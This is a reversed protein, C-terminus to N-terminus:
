PIIDGIWNRHAWGLGAGSIQRRSGVRQCADAQDIRGGPVLVALWDGEAGFITVRDGNSLEGLKRFDSGPGSRVALFGDGDARLGMVTGASCNAAQGDSEHEFVPRDLGQAPLVTPFLCFGAVVLASSRRM